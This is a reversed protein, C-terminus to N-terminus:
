LLSNIIKNMKAKHKEIERNLETNAEMFAMLRINQSESLAAEIHARPDVKPLTNSFKTQASTLEEKLFLLYAITEIEEKVSKQLRDQDERSINLEDLKLALDISAEEMFREKASTDADFSKKLNIASEELATEISSHLIDEETLKELSKEDEELDQAELIDEEKLEEYVPIHLSLASIDDKNRGPRLSNAHAHNVLNQSIQGTESDNMIQTLDRIVEEEEGNDANGLSKNVGDCGLLVTSGPKLNVTGFNYSEIKLGPYGVGKTPARFPSWSPYPIYPRGARKELHTFSDDTSLQKANREQHKLYVRSDGINGFSLKIQGSKTRWVLALSLSTVPKQETELDAFTETERVEMVKQHAAEIAERILAEMHLVEGNEDLGEPLNEQWKQFDAVALTAASSAEKPGACGGAGDSLVLLAMKDGSPRELLKARLTDENQPNPKNKTPPKGISEFDMEWELKEEIERATKQLEKKELKEKLAEPSLEPQTQPQSKPALNAM